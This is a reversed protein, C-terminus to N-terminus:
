KSDGSGSKSKEKQVMDKLEKRGPKKDPKAPIKFKQGPFILDPNKIQERNAVYILPWLSADNYVKQSIRWLCDTDKKRWQVTYFESKTEQTGRDAATTDTTDATGDSVAVDSVASDTEISNMVAAIITEAEDARSIADNYNEASSLDKGDKILAEASDLREGYKGASDKERAAALMKEANAIAEDAYNKRLKNDTGEILSKATNIRSEADAINDQELATEAGNLEIMANDLDAAVEESHKKGKIDDLTTRLAAIEASLKKKKIAKEALDLATNTKDLESYATRFDRSDRADIAMTLASAAAKLEAEAAGAMADNKLGLHRSGAESLGRDLSSSNELSDDCAERALTEAEVALGASKRYEGADYASKAENNVQGASAFKEPSFKEAFLKEAENYKEDAASLKDQAFLPLSRNESNKASDIALLASAKADDAKENALESHAQQLLSEAKALEDPSHKEADVDRASQIAARADTMEQVPVDLQCAFFLLAAVPLVIHKRRILSIFKKM